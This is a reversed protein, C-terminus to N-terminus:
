RIRRFLTSLNLLGMVASSVYTLACARLIKRAKTIDSQNLYEGKQLIPLAKNFSADFEVPLTILHVLLNFVISVVIVLFLGRGLIATAPILSLIPMLMIAIQALKQVMAALLALKSRLQLRWDRQHFQIAHGVEHAAVVVATLSQGQLHEQRLRVINDGPDFHDGQLTEELGAKLEFRNILHRALEGGTGPLYDLRVSYRKLVAKVWIGPGAVVTVLLLLLILWIM